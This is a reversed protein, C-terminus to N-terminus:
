QGVQTDIWCNVCSCQQKQHIFGVKLDYIVGLFIFCRSKKTKHQAVRVLLTMAWRVWFGGKCPLCQIATVPLGSAAVAPASIKSRPPLATSAAQAMNAAVQVIHSTSLQPPSVCASM